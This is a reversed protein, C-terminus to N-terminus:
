QYHDQSRIDVRLHEIRHDFDNLHAPNMVWQNQPLNHTERMLRQAAELSNHVDRLGRGEQNLEEAKHLENFIARARPDNPNEFSDHAHERM